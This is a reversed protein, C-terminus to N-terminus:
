IDFTKVYCAAAIQVGQSTNSTQPTVNVALTSGKQLTLAGLAIVIRGTGSASLTSITVDGDTIVAESTAGKYTDAVLPRTSGHNQNQLIDVDNANTVIDGTTPNRIVDVTLDGTGGTSNGLNYILATVILDSDENNKIYLVTTNAADTLTVTGTNINYRTGLDTARDAETETVSTTSLRNDNTVKAEKGSGIGDRITFSM